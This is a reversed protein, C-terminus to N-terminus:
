ETLTLSSVIKNAAKALDTDELHAAVGAVYVAKDGVVIIMELKAKKGDKSLDATVRIADKERHIIKQSSVNDVKEGSEGAQRILEPLQKEFLDLLQQKQEESPTTPYQQALALVFSRTEEEGDKEQFKTGSDDEVREYDKPVQLNFGEGEYTTLKIGGFVKTYGFIVALLLVLIALVIAIIKVPKKSKAPKQAFASAPIPGAPFSSPAGTSAPDTPPQPPQDAGVSAPPASPQANFPGSQPMPADSEPPTTPQSGYPAPQGLVGAESAPPVPLANQNENNQQPEPSVAPVDGPVVPQSSAGQGGTPLSEDEPQSPNM